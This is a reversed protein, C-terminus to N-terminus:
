LLQVYPYYVNYDWSHQRSFNVSLLLAARRERGGTSYWKRAAPQELDRRRKQPLHANNTHGRGGGGVGGLLASGLAKCHAWKVCRLGLTATFSGWLRQNQACTPLGQYVWGEVWMTSTPRHSHFPGAASSHSHVTTNEIISNGAGLGQLMGIPLAMSNPSTKVGGRSYQVNHIVIYHMKLWRM